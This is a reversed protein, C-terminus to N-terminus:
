AVGLSAIEANTIKSGPLSGRAHWEPELIHRLRGSGTVVFKMIGPAYGQYVEANTAIDMDDEIDTPTPPEPTPAVPVSCALDAMIPNEVLNVDCRTPVGPVTGSSSWQWMDFGYPQCAARVRAEAAYAAVWRMRQGNFIRTDKWANQYVGCYVAVPRGTVREVETCFALAADPSLGKEEYDLIVGEGEGIGQFNQLFWRAQAVGDLNPSLWHYGMRWRFGAAAADARNRAATPDLTRVGQTVKWAAVAFDPRACAARVAPWNVAGQYKSVDIGDLRTM